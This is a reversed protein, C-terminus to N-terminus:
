APPPISARSSPALSNRSHRVMRRTQRVGITHNVAMFVMMAALVVLLGISVAFIHRQSLNRQPGMRGWGFAPPSTKGPASLPQGPIETM